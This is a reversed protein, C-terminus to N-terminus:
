EIRSFFHGENNKLATKQFVFKNVCDDAKYNM